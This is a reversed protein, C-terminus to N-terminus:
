KSKPKVTDAAIQPAVQEIIRQKMRIIAAQYSDSTERNLPYGITNQLMSLTDLERQWDNPTHSVNYTKPPNPARFFAMGIVAVTLMILTFCGFQRGLQHERQNLSHLM